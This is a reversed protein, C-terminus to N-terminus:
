LFSLKVGNNNTNWSKDKNKQNKYKTRPGKISIKNTKLKIKWDWNLNEIQDKNKKNIIKNKPGKTFPKNAKLKM